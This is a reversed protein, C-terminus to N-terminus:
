RKRPEAWVKQGFMRTVADYRPCLSLIGRNMHVIRLLVFREQSNWTVVRRGCDPRLVTSMTKPNWINITLQLGWSSVCCSRRQRVRNFCIIAFKFWMSVLGLIVRYPIIAPNLRIFQWQQNIHQASRAIRIATWLPVLFGEPVVVLIRIARWRQVGAEAGLNWSDSGKVPISFEQPLQEDDVAVNLCGSHVITSRSDIECNPNWLQHYM